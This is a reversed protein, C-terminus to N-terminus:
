RRAKRVSQNSAEERLQKTAITTARVISKKLHGLLRAVVDVSEQRSAHEPLVVYTLCHLEAGHSTDEITFVVNLTKRSPDTTAVFCDAAQAAEKFVHSIPESIM